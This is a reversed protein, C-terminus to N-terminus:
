KKRENEALESAGTKQPIYYCALTYFTHLLNSFVILFFLGVKIPM